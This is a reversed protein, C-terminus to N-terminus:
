NFSDGIIKSYLGYPQHSSIGFNQTKKPGAGWILFDCAENNTM